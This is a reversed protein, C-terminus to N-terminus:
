FLFALVDEASEKDGSAAEYHTGTLNLDGRNRAVKGESERVLNDQQVLSYNAGSLHSLGFKEQLETVSSYSSEKEIGDEDSEDGPNDTGSDDDDDRKHPEDHGGDDTTDVPDDEDESNEATDGEDEAVEEDLSDEDEPDEEEEIGDDSDESGEDDQGDDSAGFISFSGTRTESQQVGPTEEPEGEPSTTDSGGDGHVEYGGPISSTEEFPSFTDDHGGVLDVDGEGAFKLHALVTRSVARRAQESHEFSGLNFSDQSTGDSWVRANWGSATRMIAATPATSDDSVWAFGGQDTRSWAAKNNVSAFRGPQGKSKKEKAHLSRMESFLAYAHSCMRGVFSRKRLYAWHGWDCECSWGSVQSATLNQRGGAPHSGLRQVTTYYRGNDGQVYATIVEPKYVEVQVAGESRLRVSKAVVDKWAALAVLRDSSIVQLYERWHNPTNAEVTFGFSKFPVGHHAVGVDEGGNFGRLAGALGGMVDQPKPAKPMMGGLGGAAEGAAAGEGAAATEGGLLEPALALLAPNATKTSGQAQMQGPPGGQQGVAMMSQQMQNLMALDAQSGTWHWWGNSDTAWFQMLQEIQSEIQTPAAAADEAATKAAALRREYLDGSDGDDSPNDVLNRLNSEQYNYNNQEYRELLKELDQEQPEVGNEAYKIPREVNRNKVGWQGKDQRPKRNKKVAKAVGHKNDSYGAESPTKPNHDGHHGTLPKSGLPKGKKKKDKLGGEAVLERHEVKSHLPLVEACHCINALFHLDATTTLAFSATHGGSGGDGGSSGSDGGDSDGDSSSDSSDSDGDDDSDSDDDSDDDDSDSFDRGQERKNDDEDDESAFKLFSLGDEIVLHDYSAATRSEFSEGSFLDDTDVGDPNIPSNELGTPSDGPLASVDLIDDDMSSHHHRARSIRSHPEFLGGIDAEVPDGGDEGTLSDSSHGYDVDADIDPAITSTSGDWGPGQPASPYPLTTSNDDNIEDFAPPDDAFDATVQLADYWGEFGAGKILYSTM